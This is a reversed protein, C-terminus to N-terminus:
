LGVLDLGVLAVRSALPMAVAGEYKTRREGGRRGGSRQRYRQPSEGGIYKVISPFIILMESFGNFDINFLMDHFAEDRLIGLEKEVVNLLTSGRTHFFNYLKKYDNSVLAFPIPISYTTLEHVVKPLIGSSAILTLELTLWTIVHNPGKTGLSASGLALPNAGILARCLFNFILDDVQRNFSVKGEKEFEKEVEMCLADFAMSFEPFIRPRSMKLVEFTFTKLKDHTEKSPDQYVATKY